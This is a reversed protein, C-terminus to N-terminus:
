ASDECVPVERVLVNEFGGEALVAYLGYRITEVAPPYDMVYVDRVREGALWTTLPRWGYVPAFQDGQAVVVGDADLAHVFVSLDREPIEDTQWVVDLILRDPECTLNEVAVTIGPPASEAIDPETAIEVLFPAVARLYVPRGLRDTWWAVTERYFTYEPTVLPPDLATFDANHGVLRIDQLRPDRDIDRAFGVAFHRPGWGIMLTAGNPTVSAQEIIELGTPDHTLDHIFPRNQQYLFIGLVFPALFVIAAAATRLSAMRPTRPPLVRNTLFVWGFALSLTVPLILASLVDGYFAVHFGYAVGGLLLLTIAPRCTDRDAVGAVLGLLGAIIGPATLDRILVTNVRNFNEWLDDRLGIFRSAERGTFQDWLGQLTGTEGYIWAADTQARLYPYAYQLFGLLGLLVSIALIRPLHRRDATMQPWVAYLLAPIAMAIARHHAVGIGGLLALWYIRGPIPDRWLALLLLALLIVLGFSYIEAIVNHIWITRTLGFVVALALSSWFCGTLHHALAFLLALAIGGWLLSVLAPAVVAEVGVARMLTTLVNGSMVYLPYNTAHLTGWNNLVIQTEGVDIMYYHDAGNPITQLTPLYVALLLGVAAVLGLIRRIKSMGRLIGRKDM